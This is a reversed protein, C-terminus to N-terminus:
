GAAGGQKKQLLREKRLASLNIILLVVLVVVFIIASLANIEPSIRKRVMATIKASSKDVIFSDETLSSSDVTCSLVRAEPLTITVTDGQLEMSVLSADVGLEVVGSYEIWFHKDKKWLWIGAADEEMYKAVNHYYCEMVALECISRMRSVQPAIEPVAEEKGGCAACALLTLACLLMATLRKM